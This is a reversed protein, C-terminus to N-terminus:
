LNSEPVDGCKTLFDEIEQPDDSNQVRAWERKAAEAKRRAEAELIRRQEEARRQEEIAQREEASVWSLRLKRSVTSCFQEVIQKVETSNVDRHRIPRWDVYQRDKVVSIVPDAMTTIELDPVSIYLIPFVLDSRGLEREREIFREFEFRCFNSNVASPTVM